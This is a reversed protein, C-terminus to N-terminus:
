VRVLFNELVFVNCMRFNFPSELIASAKLNETNSVFYPRKLWITAQAWKPADVGLEKAIERATAILVAREAKKRSRSFLRHLSTLSRTRRVEDVANFIPTWNTVVASAPRGGLTGNKRSAKSKAETKTKGGIRGLAVANPNKKM